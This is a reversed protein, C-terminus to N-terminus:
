LKPQLLTLATRVTESTQLVAATYNKGSVEARYGGLTARIFVHFRVSRHDFPPTLSVM